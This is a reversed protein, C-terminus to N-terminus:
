VNHLLDVDIVTTTGRVSGKFVAAAAAAAPFLVFTTTITVAAADAVAIEAAAVAVDGDASAVGGSVCSCFFDRFLRFIAKTRMCVLVPVAKYITKTKLNM